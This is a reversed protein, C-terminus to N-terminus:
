FFNFHTYFYFMFMAVLRIFFIDMIKREPKKNSERQKKKREEKEM